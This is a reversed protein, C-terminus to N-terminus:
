NWAVSLIRSHTKWAAIAKEMRAVLAELEQMATEFNPPQSTDSKVQSKKAAVALKTKRHL